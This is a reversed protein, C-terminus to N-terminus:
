ARPRTTPTHPRVKGTRKQNVTVPDHAELAMIRNLEALLEPGVAGAYKAAELETRGAIGPAKKVGPKVTSM